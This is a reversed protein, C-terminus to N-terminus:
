GCVLFLTVILKPILLVVGVWFGFNLVSSSLFGLFIFVLFRFYVGCSGGFWFGLLLCLYLLGFRVTVFLGGLDVSTGCIVGYLGPFLWFCVVEAVLCGFRVVLYVVVMLLYCFAWFALVRLLRLMDCGFGFVLCITLNVM